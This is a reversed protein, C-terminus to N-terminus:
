GSMIRKKLTCLINEQGSHYSTNRRRAAYSECYRKPMRRWKCNTMKSTLENRTRYKVMASLGVAKGLMEM